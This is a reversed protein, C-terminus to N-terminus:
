RQPYLTPLSYTENDSGENEIQEHGKTSNEDAPALYIRQSPSEPKTKQLKETGCQIKGLKQIQTPNIVENSAMSVVLTTQEANLARGVSTSGFM